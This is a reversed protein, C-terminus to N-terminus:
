SLLAVSYYIVLGTKIVPVHHKLQTQLFLTCCISHSLCYFNKRECNQFNSTWSRLKSIQLFKIGLYLWMWLYQPSPLVITDKSSVHNLRYCHISSYCHRFIHYHSQICDTPLSFPNQPSHYFLRFQGSCKTSIQFKLASGTLAEFFTLFMNNSVQSPPIWM